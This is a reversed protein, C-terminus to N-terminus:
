SCKGTYLNDCILCLFGLITFVIVFSPLKPDVTVPQFMSMMLVNFGSDFLSMKRENLLEAQRNVTKHFMFIATIVTSLVCAWVIPPFPLIPTLFHALPLPKPVIMVVSAGQIPLSYIAFELTPWWLYMAGIAIDARRDILAGVLGYGTHNHFSEGWLGEEEAIFVLPNVLASQNWVRARAIRRVLNFTLVATTCRVFRWCWWANKVMSTSIWRSISEWKIPM